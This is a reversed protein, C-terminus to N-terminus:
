RSTPELVVDASAGSETVLLDLKARVPPFGDSSVGGVVLAYRGPQVDELLHVADRAIGGRITEVFERMATLDGDPERPQLQFLIVDPLEVSARFRLEVDVGTPPSLEVEADAGPTLDVVNGYRQIPQGHEDAVVLAFWTGAAVREARFTGDDELEVEVETRSGAAPDAAVLVVRGSTIPEGRADLARGSLTWGGALDITISHSGFVESLDVPIRRTRALDEHDVSLHVTTAPLNALVFRGNSDSRVQDLQLRQLPNLPSAETTRWTIRADAVPSGSAGEILFGELLVGPRLAFTHEPGDPGETALTRPLCSGLGPADVAVQMSAGVAVPLELEFRGDEAIVERGETMWSYLPVGFVGPPPLARVRFREVPRGSSADTVRGRIWGARELVIVHDDAGLRAEVHHVGLFGLARVSLALDGAALGDIRFSGSDDTRTTAASASALQVSVQADAVPRGDEDEVRGALHAGESLVLRLDEFRDAAVHEDDASWLPMATLAHDPHQAFVTLEYRSAHEILFTGSADTVTQRADSAALSFGATVITGEVPEGAADVVVGNLLVGQEVEIDLRVDRNSGVQVHNSCTAYDAHDATLQLSYSPPPLHALEYFGREDTRTELGHADFCRVRAGVVPRGQEDTVFGSARYDTALSLEIPDLQQGPRWPWRKSSFCLGDAFAFVGFWSEGTYRLPVDFLGTEDSAFSEGISMERSGPDYFLQGVTANAVAEGAPGRVVVTVHGPRAPVAETATDASTRASGGAQAVAGSPVSQVPDNRQPARDARVLAHAVPAQEGDEPGVAPRSLQWAGLGLLAVALGAAIKKTHVAVVGKGALLIPTAAGGAAAASGPDPPSFGLPPAGALPLLAAYLEAERGGEGDGIAARLRELGRRLWTRVTAAPVGRRAAIESPERGELYRESLVGRYPEDLERLYALVRQATDIREAATTGGDIAEERAVRTERARRRAAQRREGLALKRVVGRLFGGPDRPAEGRELAVVWARQVLDDALGPDYVLARALRRLADTERAVLESWPLPTDATM